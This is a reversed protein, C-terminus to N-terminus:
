LIDALKITREEKISKYCAEVCAITVINDVASIDPETDNEIAYLLGSMTGRFADPFWVTDWSPELWKNPYSKCTFRMTSPERIPHAPWGITGTAMGDLGEVRWKIYMDKECPENPWAWVDDLCTAMMDDSYKYTYQTIGDLHPFKSRPDTRCLATISEPDGFLYRFIDIHHIGMSFLELMDYEKLFEQWHPIARMEITGIIIEGLLGLDLIYKLARMSQDYRMNSNIATKVGHEVGLRAIERADALSMAVPKQCLIGKINPQKVAERVIDLQVHPPVAIDIIELSEDLLMEQWSDYVKPINHTKAVDFSIDREKSTIASVKFGLDSYAVLHCNNIIAGAGVCGIRWDKRIVPLPETAKIIESILKNIEMYVRRTIHAFVARGYM